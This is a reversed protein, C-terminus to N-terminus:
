FVFLLLLKRCASLIFGAAVQQPASRQPKKPLKALLDAGGRWLKAGAAVDRKFNGSFRSEALKTWATASKEPLGAARLCDVQTQRIYAHAKALSSSEVFCEGFTTIKSRDDQRAM